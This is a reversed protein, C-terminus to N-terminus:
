RTSLKELKAYSAILTKLGSVKFNVVVKQTPGSGAVSIVTGVGFIPSRVMCGTPYATSVEVKPEPAEGSQRRPKAEYQKRLGGEREADRRIRYQEGGLSANEVFQAPIEKLFSSPNRDEYEGYRRRRLACSLTLEKMARTMGVYLLRREEEIEAASEKSREHPLYGEELGVIFVAPFELGKAAHLTMLSVTPSSDDLDDQDSSLSVEDIFSQLTATESHAEHEAAANVFEEVNLKRNKDEDSEGFSKLYGTRDLLTKLLLAPGVTKSLEAMERILKAFAVMSEQAGAGLKANEGARALSELYPVHHDLAFGKVADFSKTGIGRTPVNVIRECAGDDAPNAVLRLYSLVDRVERREFFETGAVVRYPIRERRLAIEFSRSLANVRYFIAIDHPKFGAKILRKVGDTVLASEMEEDGGAMRRILVGEPNQTILEKEKRIKNHVILAHAAALIIKTSRYNRNLFVTKVNPYDREFSLINKINAGRWGYIAQDPDGTVHLNKHSVTLDRIIRYQADNTDQYEDVMVYRFQDSLEARAADNKELLEVMRVLLDDFDLAHRQRMEQEYRAYVKAVQQEYFSKSTAAVKAYDQPMLMDNKARSIASEVSSPKLTKSDFDLAAVCQKVLKTKEDTDYITYSPSLSLRDAFRRLERACFAHFTSIRLGKATTLKAVREKMEEAAKNTFTIALISGPKIGQELLYAVRRTVVRTKGSGAGALVLMPGEVHTAAARQEDTLDKLINSATVYGIRVEGM